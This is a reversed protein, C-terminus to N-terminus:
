DIRILQLYSAQLAAYHRIKELIRFFKEPVLNLTACIKAFHVGEYRRKALKLYTECQRSCWCYTKDIVTLWDEPRRLEEGYLNISHVPTLNRIAQAATPDALSSGNRVEPIKMLSRAEYVAERIAKENFFAYEIKKIYNQTHRGM